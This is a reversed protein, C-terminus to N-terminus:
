KKCETCAAAGIVLRLTKMPAICKWRNTVPDFSECSNLHEDGDHGGLAYLKGVLICYMYNYKITIYRRLNCIIVASIDTLMFNQYLKRCLGIDMSRNLALM